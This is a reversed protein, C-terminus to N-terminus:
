ATSDDSGNDYVVTYTLLTKYEGVPVDSWGSVTVTPAPDPKADTEKNGFTTEVFNETSYKLKLSADTVSPMENTGDSTVGVKLSSDSAMATTVSYSVDQAESDNWKVPFSAPITVTYGDGMSYTVEITQTDIVTEVGNEMLVLEVTLTDGALVSLVSPKESVSPTIVYSIPANPTSVNNPVTATYCNEGVIADATVSNGNIAINYPVSEGYANTMAGNASSIRVFYYDGSNDYDLIESYTVNYTASDGTPNDDTLMIETVDLEDTFATPFLAIIDQELQYLEEVNYYAPLLANYEEIIDKVSQLEEDTFLTKNTIHENAMDYISQMKDRFTLIGGRVDTAGDGDLDYEKTNNLFYTLGRSTNTLQEYILGNDISTKSYYQMPYYESEWFSNIDERDAIKVFSGLSNGEDDLKREYVATLKPLFSFSDAKISELTNTTRMSANYAALLENANALSAKEANSYRSYSDTYYSVITEATEKDIGFLAYDVQGATFGPYPIDNEGTIVATRVAEPLASVLASLEDPSYVPAPLTKTGDAYARYEDLTAKASVVITKQYEPLADYLTQAEAVKEALTATDYVDIEAVADEFKKAPLSKANFVEAYSKHGYDAYKAIDYTFGINDISFTKEDLSDGNMGGIAFQIAYINNLLNANKDMGDNIGNKFHQLPIKIYGRYGDLALTDGWEPNALNSTFCWESKTHNTVWEGTEPNLIQYMRNTESSDLIGTGMDPRYKIDTGSSNKTFINVTFNFNSIESFDVYLILSLPNERLAVSSSRALAGLNDLSTNNAQMEEWSNADKGHRTVTITHYVGSNDSSTFSSDIYMTAANSNLYGNDTIEAWAAKYHVRGNLADANSTGYGYYDKDTIKNSGTVTYTVLSKLHRWDSTLNGTGTGGNNGATYANRDDELRWSQEGIENNEFDNFVIFPYDALQQGVIFEDDNAVMGDLLAIYDLIKQEEDSGLMDLQGGNLLLYAKSIKNIEGRLTESVSTVREPPPLKEMTQVISPVLDYKDSNATALTGEAECDAIAKQLVDWSDRNLNKATQALNADELFATDKGNVALADKYEDILSQIYKVQRYDAWDPYEIYKDIEEFIIKSIELEENYYKTIPDGTNPNNNLSNESYAGGDTRYFFINDVFFSHQLADETAGEFSFGATKLDEIARYTDDNRTVTGASLDVTARKPDTKTVYAADDSSSGVAAAPMYGIDWGDMSGVNVGLKKHEACNFKRYQLMLAETVPTGAPDALIPSAAIQTAVYADGNAQTKPRLDKSSAFPNSTTAVVNTNDTGLESNTTTIYRDELSCFFKVPIRVYGQFNALDITGDNMMVKDWGIDERQVYVYPAEGTYGAATTGKTSYQIVENEEVDVNKGDAWGTVTKCQAGVNFALGQINVDSFDLWYWVEEAGKFDWTQRSYATYFTQTGEPQEYMIFGLASTDGIGDSLDETGAEAAVGRYILANGTTVTTDESSTSSDFTAIERAATSSTSLPMFVEPDLDIQPVDTVSTYIPLSFWNENDVAVISVSYRNKNLDIKGIDAAKFTASRGTSKITDLVVERHVSNKAGTDVLELIYFSIVTPEGKYTDVPIANPFVVRVNGYDDLWADAGKKIAEQSFYPAPNYLGSAYSMIALPVSTALMILSLLVALAKKPVSKKKM